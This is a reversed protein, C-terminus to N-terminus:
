LRKERNVIQDSEGANVEWYERKWRYYTAKGVEAAKCAEDITFGQNYKLMVLALKELIQERTYSKRAMKRRRGVDL